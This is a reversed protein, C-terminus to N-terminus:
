GPPRRNADQPRRIGVVVGRLGFAADHAVLVARIAAERADGWRVIAGPRDPDIGRLRQVATALLETAHALEAVLERGKEADEQTWFMQGRPVRM